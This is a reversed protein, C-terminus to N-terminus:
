ALLFTRREDTLPLHQKVGVKAESNHLIAFQCLFDKYDTSFSIEPHLPVRFFVRGGSQMVYGNAPLILHM